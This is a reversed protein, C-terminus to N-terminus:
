EKLGVFTFILEMTWFSSSRMATSRLRTRCMCRGEKRTRRKEDVGGDGISVGGNGSGSRDVSTEGIFEFGDATLDVAFAFDEVDAV